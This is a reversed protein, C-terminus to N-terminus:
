SEIRYSGLRELVMGTCIDQYSGPRCVLFLGLVNSLSALLYPLAVQKTATVICYFAELKKHHNSITDTTLIDDFACHDIMSSIM